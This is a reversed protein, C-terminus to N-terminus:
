RTALRRRALVVHHRPASAHSQVHRVVPLLRVVQGELPKKQRSLAEGEHEVEVVGENVRRHVRARAGQRSRM